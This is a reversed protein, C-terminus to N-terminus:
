VHGGTSLSTVLYWKSFVAIVYRAFHSAHVCLISETCHNRTGTIGFFILLHAMFCQFNSTPLSYRTGTYTQSPDEHYKAVISLQKISSGTVVRFPRIAVRM